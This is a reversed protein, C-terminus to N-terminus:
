KNSVISSMIKKFDRYNFIEKQVSSNEFLGKQISSTFTSVKKKPIPQIFSFNALKGMNLFRNSEKQKEPEKTSNKESPVKSSVKNYSKFKAFPANKLDIKNKESGRDEDDEKNKKDEELLKLLPSSFGEPTINEDMFFDLCRFSSVYKMAVANLIDYPQYQDCYYVFGLKYVDYYMIINGRPTNEFLIRTKWQKELPNNADILMEKYQSKSYFVTHVNLSKMFSQTDNNFYELFKTKKKEIYKNSIERITEPKKVVTENSLSTFRKFFQIIFLYLMVFWNKVIGNARTM